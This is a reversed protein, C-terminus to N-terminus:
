KEKTGVMFVSRWPQYASKFTDEYLVDSGRTVKRSFSAQAGWAAWDVQKTKGKELTPDDQYLPEPPPVLNTVVPTTMEVKRGDPTGYIKFNLTQLQTNWSAQILIHNPTDNKFQFDLSPQFVSADVGAPSDQEYYGVRYAHPHRAVIPLGANLAARFLTTSTQCVGGGEGLITRGNSIIYATDYGSKASIDGVSNNFSFIGGPPVIVGDVRAAALTLNNIRPTISGVYKSNGEGIVSFIGYKSADPLEAIEKVQLAVSDKKNLFAEKFDSTLKDSDLEKGKRTVEFNTVLSDKVSLVNGRPLENVEQKIQNAYAQFKAKNLEVSVDKGEKVVAVFELMQDTTPTWKKDNYSIQIKNFILSNVKDYVKELEEKTLKSRLVEVQLKKDRFNMREIASIVADYLQQDNVKLGDSSPDIILKNEVIKFSAEKAEVNIEGKIRSFENGLKGSNLDYDVRLQITKILSALKDKMDVFMNGSRGLEFARSVTSEVNYVLDLNEGKIEYTKGDFLLKLNKPLNKEYATVEEVAQDFSLGGIFIDGVRVGPIVKRAYGIHYVTFFLILTLIALYLKKLFVYFEHSKTYLVVKNWFELRKLKSPNKVVGWFHTFLEFFSNAVRKVHEKHKRITM